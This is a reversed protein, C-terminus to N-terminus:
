TEGVTPMAAFWMIAELRKRLREDRPAGQHPFTYLVEMPITSAAIMAELSAIEAGIGEITDPFATM